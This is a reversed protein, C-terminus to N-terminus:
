NLPVPLRRSLVNTNAPSSIFEGQLSHLIWYDPAYSLALDTDSKALDFEARDVHYWGRWGYSFAGPDVSVFDDFAALAEPYRGMWQLMTARELRALTHFSIERGRFSTFETDLDFANLALLKDLERLAEPGAEIDMFYEFSHFRAMVDNPALEIEKDYAARAVRFNRKALGITGIIDFAPAYDAKLHLARAALAAAGDYDAKTFAVSTRRVLPEPDNPALTIAEDFDFIATNFDQAMHAARGQIILARERDAKSLDAKALVKRCAEVAKQKDAGFVPVACDGWDPEASCAISTSGLAIAICVAM